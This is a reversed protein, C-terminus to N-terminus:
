NSVFNKMEEYADHECLIYLRLARDRSEKECWEGDIYDKEEVDLIRIWGIKTALFTM